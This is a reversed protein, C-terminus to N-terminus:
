SQNTDTVCVVLTYDNVTPFESGATMQGTISLFMPLATMDGVTVPSSAAATSATSFSYNADASGLKVVQTLSTRKFQLITGYSQNTTAVANITAIIPDAATGLPGFRVRFTASDVTGSKSCTLRLEFRDNIKIMNSTIARHNPNLQQESTNAVGSNATDIADITQFDASPDFMSFPYRLIGYVDTAKGQEVLSRGFDDGVLYQTGVTMPLGYRDFVQTKTIQVYIAM